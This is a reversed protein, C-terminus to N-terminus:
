RASARARACACGWGVEGDVDDLGALLAGGAAAARRGVGDVAREVGGEGGHAAAGGRGRRSRARSQRRAARRLDAIINM